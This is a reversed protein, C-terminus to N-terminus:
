FARRARSRLNLRTSGPKIRPCGASKRNWWTIRVLIQTPRGPDAGRDAKAWPQGLHPPMPWSAQHAQPLEGTAAPIPSRSLRCAPIQASADGGTVGSNMSCYLCAPRLGCVGLTLYGIVYKRHLSQPVLRLSLRLATCLRSTKFHPSSAPTCGDAAAGARLEFSFTSITM